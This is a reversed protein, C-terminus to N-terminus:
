ILKKIRAWADCSLHAGMVRCVEYGCASAIRGSKKISFGHAIGFLFGAAWLDGAGTTDIPAEGSQAYIRTITDNYSVYSGRKGLKLVAYTVHQSLTEIAKQEDEYGTYAKAEDENAILIDVFDKIIDELIERAANVVEFSALDLAILSGSAKAAKIAAMMLEKNFLLYGEIMSIATDKFMDPSILEPDLETSAGLFTFMSRQADPTIVSLVKGTPSDSISVLPEVNCKVIQKEFVEGYGDDGRRGIFRANGGLNGIGVITNCAAGGPVIVPTQNTRTLIEQIDKDEVLTMGGKEKGLNTLFEDSENILIDVLASGIGTIRTLNKETM